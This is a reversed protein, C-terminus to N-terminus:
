FKTRVTVGYTRPEAPFVIFLSDAVTAGGAQITAISNSGQIPAGTVIQRYHRNFINQGWFELSWVRDKGTVGARANVVTVGQQLKEPLLDSGTNVESQFRFDAHLLGSIGDGIGLPPTWTAGGTVTYTPANSLAKARSRSCHRPSRAATSGASTAAIAPARM